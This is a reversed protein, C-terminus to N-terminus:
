PLKETLKRLTFSLDGACGIDKVDPMTAQRPKYASRPCLRIRTSIAALEGAMATSSRASWACARGSEAVNRVASGACQPSTAVGGRKKHQMALEHVRQSIKTVDEGAALAAVIM